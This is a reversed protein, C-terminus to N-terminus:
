ALSVAVPPEVPAQKLFAPYGRMSLLEERRTGTLPGSFADINESFM